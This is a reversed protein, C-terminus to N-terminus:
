APQDFNDPVTVGCSNLFYRTFQDCGTIFYTRDFLTIAQNVNLDLVDVFGEEPKPKPIQQRRVLCGQPIGSNLTRPESVQMSGDELYFLIKVKRVQYTVRLDHLSEKFYGYFCLVKRDSSLWAPLKPGYNKPYLTSDARTDSSTTLPRGGIGIKEGAKLRCVKDFVEFHQPRHFKDQCPDPFSNGPLLPLGPTRIIM